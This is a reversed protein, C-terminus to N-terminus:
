MLLQRAGCIETHNMRRSFRRSHKFLHQKKSLSVWFVGLRPSLPARWFRGCGSASGFLKMHHTRWLCQKVLLNCLTSSIKWTKQRKKGVTSIKIKTHHNRSHWSSMWKTLVSMFQCTSPRGRGQRLNKQQTMAEGKHESHLQPAAIPPVHGFFVLVFFVGLSPFFLSGKRRKWCRTWVETEPTFCLFGSWVMQIQLFPKIYLYNGYKLM